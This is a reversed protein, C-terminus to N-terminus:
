WATDGELEVDALGTYGTDLSHVAMWMAAVRDLHSSVNDLEFLLRVNGASTVHKKVCRLEALTEPDDPISITRDEFMTRLKGGCDMIVEHKWTVEEARYGYKQRCEEALQMGLGTADVCLRSVRGRSETELAMLGAIAITMEKFPKRDLIFVGATRHLGGIPALVWIVFLDKKRGVDVGAFLQGCPRGIRRVDALFTALDETPRADDGRVCVNTLVGTYYTSGDQSAVCMFEELFIDIDGSGARVEALFEDRTQSSGTVVNIREVLGDAIADVISTTHLSVPLDDSRPAGHGAPDIRRLASMVLKAHFFTDEGNETSLVRITGGWMITPYAAKWMERQKPHHAFEDLCVDGGKSRFRTPNSTMAVIRPCRGRVEPFTAQLTLVDFEKSPEVELVELVHGLVGAFARVYEMFERAASEDASAFFYDRNVQGSIRRAVCDFAEAMTAGIRRSKRWVKIKSQDECWRRQYGLLLSEGGSHEAITTPTEAAPAPSIFAPGAAVMAGVTLSALTKPLSNRM